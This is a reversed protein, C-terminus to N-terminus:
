RACDALSETLDWALLQDDEYDAPGLIDALVASITDFDQIALEKKHLIVHGILLESPSVCGLRMHYFILILM